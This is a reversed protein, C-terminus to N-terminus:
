FWIKPAFAFLCYLLARSIILALLVMYKNARMLGLTITIGNGIIPLFSFVAMWAGRNRVFNAARDLTSQKVGVKRLWDKKGLYGLFFCTMCGSVSGITGCIVLWLPTLGAASLAAMVLEANFPIATGALFASVLMGVYGYQILFQVITDM